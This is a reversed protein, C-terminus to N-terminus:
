ACILCFMIVVLQWPTYGQDPQNEQDMFSMLFFNRQHVRDAWSDIQLKMTKFTCQTVNQTVLVANGDFFIRMQWFNVCSIWMPFAFKRTNGGFLEGTYYYHVGPLFRETCIGSKIRSANEGTKNKAEKTNGTYAASIVARFIPMVPFVVTESYSEQPDPRYKWTLVLELTPLQLGYTCSSLWCHETNAILM